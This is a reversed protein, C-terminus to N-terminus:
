PESPRSWWGPHQVGTPFSDTACNGKSSRGRKKCLFGETRKGEKRGELQPVEQQDVVPHRLEAELAAHGAQVVSSQIGLLHATPYPQGLGRGM